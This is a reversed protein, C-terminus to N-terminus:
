NSFLINPANVSNRFAVILKTMDTRRNAHFLEAREPLIKTFNSIQTNRSIRDVFNQSENFDSFLLPCKSHVGVGM